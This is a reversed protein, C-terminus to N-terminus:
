SRTTEGEAIAYLPLGLKEARTVAASANLVSANDDGDTVVILAKKGARAAVEQAAESLADFLATQGEARTRLIARKAAQKDTTFEQRVMLRSDFTYIAVSDQPDFGDIRKGIPTKVGPRADGKGGM